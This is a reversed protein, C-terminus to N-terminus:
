PFPSDTNHVIFLVLTEDGSLPRDFVAVFRKEEDKWSWTCPSLRKNQSEKIRCQFADAPIGDPLDEIVGSVSYPDPPPATYDIRCQVPHIEVLDRDDVCVYVATLMKQDRDAAAMPLVHSPLRLAALCEEVNLPDWDWAIGSFKEKLRTILSELELPFGATEIGSVLTGVAMSAFTYGVEIELERFYIRPDNEKMPMPPLAWDPRWNPTDAMKLVSDIVAPDLAGTCAGLFSKNLTYINWPEIFLESFGKRMRDPLVLDGPGALANDTWIQAVQVMNGPGTELVVVEPPNYFYNDRWCSLGPDVARVQGPEAALAAPLKSFSTKLKESLVDLAEIEDRLVTACFPCIATHRRLQEEHKRDNKVSLPPCTRLQRALALAQKRTYM